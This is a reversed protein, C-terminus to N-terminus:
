RSGAARKRALDVERFFVSLGGANSTASAFNFTRGDRTKVRLTNAAYDVDFTTIDVFAARFSDKGDSAEYRIGDNSGVLRGKCSGLGHKHTVEIQADLRLDKFNITITRTGAEVGISESYRDYGAASVHLQHSGPEIDAITLPAEGKGVRDFFVSAGPVDTEIRLTGTTPAAESPTSPPTM